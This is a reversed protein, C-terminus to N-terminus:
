AGAPLAVYVDVEQANLASPATRWGEPGNVGCAAWLLSSLMALPLETRAFERDPRRKSLAEMLPMGGVKRPPPLAITKTAEGHAPTPRLRGIMGLALKTLTSM